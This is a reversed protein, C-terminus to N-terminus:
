YTLFSCCVQPQNNSNGETVKFLLIYVCCHSELVPSPLYGSPIISIKSLVHKSFSSKQIVHSVLKQISNISYKNEDENSSIPQPSQLSSQENPSTQRTTSTAQFQSKLEHARQILQASVGFQRATELAMSDTIWGDELKYSWKM